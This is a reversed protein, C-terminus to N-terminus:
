TCSHDVRVVVALVPADAEGAGGDGDEKVVPYGCLHTRGLEARLAERRVESRDPQPLLVAEDLFRGQAPNDIHALGLAAANFRIHDEDPMELSLFIWDFSLKGEFYERANVGRLLLRPSGCAKIETIRPYHLREKRTQPM